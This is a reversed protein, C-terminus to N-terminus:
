TLSFLACQRAETASIVWGTLVHIKYDAFDKLIKKEMLELVVLKDDTSTLTGNDDTLLLEKLKIKSDEAPVEKRYQIGIARIAKEECFRGMDDPMILPDYSKSHNNYYKIVPISVAGLTVVTTALLFTRRKM